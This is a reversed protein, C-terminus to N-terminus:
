LYGRAWDKGFSAGFMGTGYKKIDNDYLRQISSMTYDQEENTDETGRDEEEEEEDDDEEKMPRKMRQFLRKKEKEDIKKVMKRIMPPIGYWERVDGKSNIRGVIVADEAYDRSTTIIYYIPNGNEMRQLTHYDEEQEDEPVLKSVQAGYYPKILRGRINVVAGTSKTSM